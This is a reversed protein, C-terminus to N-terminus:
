KSLVTSNRRLLGLVCNVLLTVQAAVFVLIAYSALRTIKELMHIQSIAPGTRIQLHVYQTYFIFGIIVAVSILTLFVHIRSMLPSYSFRNTFASTAGILFLLISSGLYLTLASMVYYTDFLLIDVTMRGAVLSMGLLLIAAIFLLQFPKHKLDM